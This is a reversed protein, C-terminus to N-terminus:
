GAKEWLRRNEELYEERGIEGSEYRDLLDTADSTISYSNADKEGVLANKGGDQMSYTNVGSDNQSIKTDSAFKDMADVSLQPATMVPLNAKIIEAEHLYFKGNGGNKPYSKVVVGVLSDSTNITGKAAIVYRDVGTGNYNQAYSIINGM